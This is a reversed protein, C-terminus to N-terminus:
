VGLALKEERIYEEAEDIIKKYKELTVKGRAYIEPPIKSRNKELEKVKAEYHPKRLAQQKISEELSKTRVYTSNDAM